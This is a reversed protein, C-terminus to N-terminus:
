ASFISTTKHRVDIWAKVFAKFANGIKTLVAAALVPINVKVAFGFLKILGNLAREAVLDAGKGFGVLVALSHKLRAASSTRKPVLVHEAVYVDTDALLVQALGAGIKRSYM